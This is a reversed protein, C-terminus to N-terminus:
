NNVRGCPIKEVTGCTGDNEYKYPYKSPDSTVDYFRFVALYCDGNTDTITMSATQRRYYLLNDKDRYPVREGWSFQHVTHGWRTEADKIIQAKLEDDKFGNSADFVFNANKELEANDYAEIGGTLDFAISGASMLVSRNQGAKLRTVLTYEEKESNLIYDMMLGAKEEDAFDVKFKLYGEEKAVASMKRGVDRFDDYVGRNDNWRLTLIVESYNKCKSAKAKSIPAKVYFGMAGSEIKTIEQTLAEDSYFSIEDPAQAAMMKELLKNQAQTPVLIILCAITVLLKTM